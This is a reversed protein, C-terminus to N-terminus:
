DAELDVHALDPVAAAAAEEIKDIADGVADVMQEGFEELVEGLAAPSDIRGHLEPLDIDAIKQRAIERGDFDVEAKFRIKGSGLVVAKIDHVHDVTPQEQVIRALEEVVEPNPAEGLLLERNRNVLLIAVLGLMLGIVISGIADWVPAHFALSLGVCVAAVIVGLVAVSDELLVAAAMPDSSERVYKILPVSGAQEKIAKTAVLLAGGEVILSFILVGALMPIQDHSIPEHPHLLSSIGHYVTVGCGLFFIGVASILAWIFRARTYGYPHEPSAEKRSRKIGLALLAQNGVDALSHIGESLMAASGSLAFAVFKAVMVSTNAALAVYVAKESGGAM